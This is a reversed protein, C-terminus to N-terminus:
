DAIKAQCEPCLGYVEYQSNFV